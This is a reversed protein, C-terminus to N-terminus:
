ENNNIKTKRICDPGAGRSFIQPVPNILGAWYLLLSPGATIWYISASDTWSTTAWKIYYTVVYFPDSSRPCVTPLDTLSFYNTILTQWLWWINFLYNVCNWHWGLHPSLLFVIFKRVCFFCYLKHYVYKMYCNGGYFFFIPSFMIIITNVWLNFVVFRKM